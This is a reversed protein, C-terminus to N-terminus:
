SILSSILVSGDFTEEHHLVNSYLARLNFFSNLSFRGKLQSLCEVQITHRLAGFRSAALRFDSCFNGFFNVVRDTIDRQKSGAKPLYDGTGVPCSASYAGVPTQHTAFTFSNNYPKVNVQECVYM